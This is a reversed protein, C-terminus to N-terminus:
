SEMIERDIERLPELDKPFMVFDKDSRVDLVNVQDPLQVPEPGSLMELEREIEEDSFLAPCNRVGKRKNKVFVAPQGDFSTRFKFGMEKMAEIYPPLPDPQKPILICGFYQRLAAYDFVRDAYYEQDTDTFTDRFAQLLEPQAVPQLDEEEDNYRKGM